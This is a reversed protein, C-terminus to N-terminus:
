LVGSNPCKGEFSHDLLPHKLFWAVLVRPIRRVSNWTSKTSSLVKIKLVLLAARVIIVRANRSTQDGASTHWDFHCCIWSPLLGSGLLLLRTVSGAPVFSKICSQRTNGSWWNYWIGPIILSVTLGLLCDLCILSFQILICPLPAAWAIIWSGLLVKPCWVGFTDHWGELHLRIPNHYMPEVLSWYWCAWLKWWQEIRTISPIEMRFTCSSIILLSSILLLNKSMRSTVSQALLHVSLYMPLVVLSSSRLFYLLLQRPLSHCVVFTGPVDSLCVFWAVTSHALGM